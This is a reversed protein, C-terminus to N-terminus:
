DRDCFLDTGYHLLGDDRMMKGGCIIRIWKVGKQMLIEHDFGGNEVGYGSFCGFKGGFGDLFCPWLMFDHNKATKPGNKPHFPAL